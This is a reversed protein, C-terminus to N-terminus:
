HVAGVNQLLSHDIQIEGIQILNCCMSYYIITDKSFFIFKIFTIKVIQTHQTPSTCKHADV